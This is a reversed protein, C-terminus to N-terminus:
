NLGLVRINWTGSGQDDLLHHVTSVTDPWVGLTVDPGGHGPLM